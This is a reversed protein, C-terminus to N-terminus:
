GEMDVLVARCPSGEVGGLNLPASFLMYVGEGVEGLHVGELLVVEEGLLINHVEMPAKEDGVTQSENGYM